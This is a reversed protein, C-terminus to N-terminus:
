STPPARMCQQIARSHSLHGEVIIDTRYAPIDIIHHRVKGPNTKGSRKDVYYERISVMTMGKFDSVQLRSIEWYPNDEDDKQPEKDLAFQQKVKKSQPPKDGASDSEDEAERKRTEHKTKAMIITQEILTIITQSCRVQGNIIQRFPAQM